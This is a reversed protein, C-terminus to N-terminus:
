SGLTDAIAIDGVSVTHPQSGLLQVYIFEENQQVHVTSVTLLAASIHYCFAIM